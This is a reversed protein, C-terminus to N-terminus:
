FRLKKRGRTFLRRLGIVLLAVLSLTLLLMGPIGLAEGLKDDYTAVSLGLVFLAFSVATLWLM